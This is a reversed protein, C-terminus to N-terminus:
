SRTRILSNLLFFSILWFDRSQLVYMRGEFRELALSNVGSRHAWVPKRGDTTEGSSNGDRM